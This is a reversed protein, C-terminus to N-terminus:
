REGGIKIQAEIERAIWDRDFRPDLTVFYKTRNHTVEYVGPIGLLLSALGPEAWVVFGFTKVQGTTPDIGIEDQILVDFKKENM